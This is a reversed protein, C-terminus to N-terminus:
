KRSKELLKVVKSILKETEFEDGIRYNESLMYYYGDRDHGCGANDLTEGEPKGTENDFYLYVYYKDCVDISVWYKYNKFWMWLESTGKRINSQINQGNFRNQITNYLQERLIRKMDGNITSALNLAADMLEPNQKLIEYLEKAKMYNQNSQNMYNLLQIYPLAVDHAVTDKQACASLWVSLEQPYFYVVEASCSEHSKRWAYLPMYVIRLVKKDKNETDKM